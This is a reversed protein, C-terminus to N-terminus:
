PYDTLYQIRTTYLQPLLICLAAAWLGVQRNFLHKGLGYVASLLIASFLLNVLLAQDPGPGFLQQFPATVIYTLPPYKSTLM